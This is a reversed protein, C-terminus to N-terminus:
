KGLKKNSSANISARKPSNLYSKVGSDALSRFSLPKPVRMESASM